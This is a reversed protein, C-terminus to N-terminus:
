RWSAGSRRGDSRVPEAAAPAPRAGVGSASRAARPAAVRYVPPHEGEAITFLSRGDRAFAVAEGQVEPPAPAACRRGAFATWLPRGPARRWVGIGAYTRVAVVRGDPSVDAATVPALGPVSGVRQLTVSGPRARYVAAPGLAKTLVLVDGRLPDVVLAEADHAGDPYRLAIRHAPVSERDLAPEPFSYVVVERRRAENDGIDAVYLYPVGPAPGPGIAVDEWDVADANDVAVTARLRGTRGLAYVRAQGGSDDHVWLVGPHLRSAAVGSIEDLAAPVVRGIREVDLRGACADAYLDAAPAPAAHLALVAFAALLARV